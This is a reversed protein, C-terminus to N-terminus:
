TKTEESYSVMFTNSLNYLINQILIYKENNLQVCIDNHIIINNNNVVIELCILNIVLM